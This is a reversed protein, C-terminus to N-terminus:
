LNWNDFEVTKTGRFHLSSSMWLKNWRCKAISWASQNMVVGVIHLLRSSAQLLRVRSPWSAWEVPFPARHHEAPLQERGLTTDVRLVGHWIRGTPPPSCASMCSPSTPMQAFVLHNLLCVKPESRSPGGALPLRPGIQSTPPLTSMASRAHTHFQSEASVQETAARELVKELTSKIEAM